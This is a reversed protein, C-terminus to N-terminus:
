EGQAAATEGTETKVPAPTRVWQYLWTESLKREYGAVHATLEILSQDQGDIDIILRWLQSDADRVKHLVVGEIKGASATVIPKVPAKEPLDGMDGGELDIVFKRLNHNKIPVGSAGGVGTRTAKVFALGNERDPPLAGWHMRYQYSRSQGAKPPDQPVWFLVINDDIELDAPIEVLRVAGPGWDNTPEIMVSPRDHYRAGADQFSEYTRDRQILGFQLLGHESFYSNAVRPPNNLPRLLVDGDKRMVM